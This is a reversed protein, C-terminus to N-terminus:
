YLHVPLIAKTKETIAAEIKEPNLNYSSERPEVFVPKAGTYSVALASAIYTNSPVIVEDGTGINLARLSLYIADLGNATGACFNTGCFNAFSKEFSELHKGLIFSSGHLIESFTEELKKQLPNHMRALDMFPVSKNKM